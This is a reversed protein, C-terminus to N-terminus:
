TILLRGPQGNSVRTQYPGTIGDRQYLFRIFLKLSYFFLFDPKLKVPSVESSGDVYNM